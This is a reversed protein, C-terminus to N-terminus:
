GGFLRSLWGPRTSKGSTMKRLEALNQACTRTNPHEKGLAKELIALSREFLPLAKGYDGQSEYLSALNNLSVATDPHEGGLAKERIALSREYLPLAKGYEGQESYLLALNNLSQATDPHEGGLAKERIALSREYMPLAKGYEGQARYLEALNNLSVATDPHEGGLAKETIALSREYLPLAKGYDGQRYYLLALNNLSQATDPHEGGLAKERIALSREYLPLAKGYDGQSEYLSALNNLGRATEPHEGGLAKETIALSREFLPSAKGYDGQASYLLALNNLSTATHPHEAGLAKELIALSREYMPLAKGYEGQARYLEALNNLSVATDPHEAGLAKERIALSREFLPLAKGYDGQRYYLLALNNLSGATEPREAGLAKEYIALSREYLPKAEAYRARENLFYGCRNLLGGAEATELGFEDIVGALHTGHPLFGECLGWNEFEVRPFARNVAAVAREAWDREEEGLRERTVAQVLRHVSIEGREGDMAILSYETLPRIVENVVDAEAVAAALGASIEGAGKEVLAFPIGEPACFASMRLIDAAAPCAAEVQEFNMGWTTEVTLRYSGAEPPSKKLIELRRARYLEVYKGFSVQNKKVFAAAQELALPLHGLEKALDKAAQTEAESLTARKTREKLFALAEGETMVELAIPSLNGVADFNTARSTLLVAGTLRSPLFRTVIEPADANDLILLWGQNQTLWTRVAAVQEDTKELFPLGLHPAFGAFGSTLASESEANTWLVRSYAERHRHAYEIATATKGVGGLGSIAQKIAARGGAKLTAHLRSLIEERGTFFDNRPPVGILRGRTPGTEVGLTLVQKLFDELTVLGCGGLSEAWYILASAHEAHSAVAGPQYAAPFNVLTKVTALQPPYLNTLDRVLKERRQYEMLRAKESFFPSGLFYARVARKM